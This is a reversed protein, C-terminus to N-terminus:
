VNMIIPLIMPSRKTKQFLQRSLDDRVRTKMTAWDCHPNRCCDELARRATEKIEDILTEAERVYVFGRTVIDPGSVLEGTVGDISAVVVILGDEALHKRDRLVISGVDGVGLGDVLVRGAPVSGVVSMKDATIEITKGIETILVHQNSLGMSKALNAHKYLHKQEGHVPIFFKPRILSQIIKLEEQCAHGSVHVDYMKEYVVDCGHKMLENVVKGVTKENGPIPTASIIICDDPGVEVKRHDSFAMRSLASMPEGQSGTTILTVKDKPYHNIADIDILLGEPVHLYGLEQAIAVFNIMSRGSVAVKRGEKASASMIQQIRPLNSSFTAVIIRKKEAKQFLTTFSDGVVHESPTYGAREANTSDALLALVGQNGLEGFRALDIVPGMVPTCDIKFDGTHVVYGLPTKIAFAMADPISHNVSIFEVSINKGVHIVGRPEVVHLKVKGSLGHEKLKSDILAVTLRGAYIPLNIQKLLYPLAGIHDEHGHTIFIGRIKDKIKLIYSFDPLVVDVGLLDEDPFSMGCDIIFADDGYEFVAMNKGIENLGGLVTYHIPLAPVAKEKRNATNKSTRREAGADNKKATDYAPRGKKQATRQTNRRGDASAQGKQNRNGKTNNFKGNATKSAAHSNQKTKEPM